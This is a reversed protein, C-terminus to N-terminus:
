QNASIGTLEDKREATMRMVCFARAEGPSSGSEPNYFLDCNADLFKLWERQAERLRQQKAAPVAQLAAKYAKDLMASQRKTEAMMCDIRQVPGGGDSDRCDGL